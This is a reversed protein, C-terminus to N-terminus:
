FFLVTMDVDKQPSNILIFLDGRKEGFLNLIIIRVQPIFLFDAAFIGKHFISQVVGHGNSFFASEPKRHSLSNEWLVPLVAEFFQFGETKVIQFLPVFTDSRRKQPPQSFFQLYNLFLLEGIVKKNDMVNHLAGGIGAAATRSSCGQYGIEEKNGMYVRDPVVEKKLPEHIFCSGIRRININIEGPIGPIFNKIINKFFVRRVVRRHYRVVNGKRDPRRYALDGFDIAHRLILYAPDRFIDFVVIVPVGIVKFVIGYIFVKRSGHHSDNVISYIDIAPGSVQRNM